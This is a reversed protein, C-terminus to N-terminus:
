TRVGSVQFPGPGDISVLLYNWTTVNAELVLDPSSLLLRVGLEIGACRGGLVFAFGDLVSLGVGDADFLAFCGVFCGDLGVISGPLAMGVGLSLWLVALDRSL